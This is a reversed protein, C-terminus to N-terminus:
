ETRVIHDNESFDPPIGHSNLISHSNSWFEEFILFHEVEGGGSFPWKLPFGASDLSFHSNCSFQDFLLFDEVEGGGFITM